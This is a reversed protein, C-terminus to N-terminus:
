FRYEDSIPKCIQGDRMDTIASGSFIVYHTM